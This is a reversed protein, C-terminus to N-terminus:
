IESLTLVIFIEEQDYIGQCLPLSDDLGNYLYTFDSIFVDEFANGHPINKTSGIEQETIENNLDKTELKISLQGEWICVALCPCFEDKAELLRILRGDPLCASDGVKLNFAVNYEIDICSLTSTGLNESKSCSSILFIIISFLIAKM